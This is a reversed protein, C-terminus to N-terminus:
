NKFNGMEEESTGFMEKAMRKFFNFQYENGHYRAHKLLELLLDEAWTESNNNVDKITFYEEVDIEDSLGMENYFDRYELCIKGPLAVRSAEKTTYCMFPHKSEWGQKQMQIDFKSLEM